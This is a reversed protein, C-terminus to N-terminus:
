ERKLNSFRGQFTKFATDCLGGDTRLWTITDGDANIEVVNGTEDNEAIWDFLARATPGTRFKKEYSIVGAKMALCLGDIRTRRTNARVQQEKRNSTEKLPAGTVLNAPSRIQDQTTQAALFAELVSKTILIHSFNVMRGDHSGILPEDSVRSGDKGCEFVTMRATSLSSQGHTLLRAAMDQTIVILGDGSIFNPVAVLPADNILVRGDDLEIAAAQTRPGASEERAVWALEGDGADKYGPIAALLEIKGLRRQEVLHEPTFKADGTQETLWAAALPLPNM